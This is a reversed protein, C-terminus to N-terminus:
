CRSTERVMKATDTGLVVQWFLRCHCKCSCKSIRFAWVFSCTVSYKIINIWLYSFHYEFNSFIYLSCKVSDTCCSTQIMNNMWFCWAFISRINATTKFLFCRNHHILAESLHMITQWRYNLQGNKRLVPLVCVSLPLLSQSCNWCVLFPFTISSTLGDIVIVSM